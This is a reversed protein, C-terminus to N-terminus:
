LEDNINRGISFLLNCDEDFVDLVNKVVPKDNPSMPFQITPNQKLQKLQEDSVEMEKTILIIQQLAVAIKM